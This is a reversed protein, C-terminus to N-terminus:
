WIGDFITRHPFSHPMIVCFMSLDRHSIDWIVDTKRVGLSEGPSPVLATVTKGEHQDATFGNMRIERPLESKHGSDWCLQTDRGDDCPGRSQTLSLSYWLSWEPGVFSHFLSWSNADRKQKM